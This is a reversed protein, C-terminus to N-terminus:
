NLGGEPLAKLTITKRDCVVTDPTVYHFALPMMTHYEYAGPDIALGTKRPFGMFDKTYYFDWGTPGHVIETGKDIIPSNEKLTFNEMLTDTFEPYISFLNSYISISTDSPVVISTSDGDFSNHHIKLASVNATVQITPEKGQAKFFINNMMDGGTSSSYTDKFILVSTGSNNVLTNNRFALHNTFKMLSNEKAQNQIFINQDVYNELANSSLVFSPNNRFINDYISVLGGVHPSSGGKIILGSKNNEFTNGQFYFYPIVGRPTPAAECFVSDNESFISSGVAHIIEVRKNQYFIGKADYNRIYNNRYFTASGTRFLQIRDMHKFITNEFSTPIYDGHPSINNSNFKGQWRQTLPDFYGEIVISDNGVARADMSGSDIWYDGTFKITTGSAVSTVEGHVDRDIYITDACWCEPITNVSDIHLIHPCEAVIFTDTRSIGGSISTVWNKGFNEFRAYTKGSPFYTTDGSSWIMQQYSVCFGDWLRAYGPVHNIFVTDEFPKRISYISVKIGASWVTDTKSAMRLLYYEWPVGSAHAPNLTLRYFNQGPIEKYNYYGAGQNQATFWQLHCNGEAIIEISLSDGESASVSTPQSIIIPTQATLSVLGFLSPGFLIIMWKKM